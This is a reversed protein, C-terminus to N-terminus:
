DVKVSIVQDDFYGLEEDLLQDELALVLLVEILGCGGHEPFQFYGM